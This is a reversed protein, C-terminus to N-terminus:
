LCLIWVSVIPMYFKLYKSERRKYVLKASGQDPGQLPNSIGFPIPHYGTFNPLCLDPPFTPDPIFVDSERIMVHERHGQESSGRDNNGWIRAKALM